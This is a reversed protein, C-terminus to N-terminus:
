IVGANIHAVLLRGVLHNLEHAENDLCTGPPPEGEHLMTSRINYARDFTKEDSEGCHTRVLIRCATRISQQRLERLGGILSARQDPELDCADTAMVLVREVFELSKPDRAARVALTEIASVLTVFRPSDSPHFHSQNYLQVALLQKPHLRRGVAYSEKLANSISGVTLPTVPRGVWFNLSRLDAATAHIKLGTVEGPGHKPPHGVALDTGIDIGVGLLLGALMAARQASEGATRAEDESAFGGGTLTLSISSDRIGAQPKSVAGHVLQAPAPPQFDFAREDSEIIGGSIRCTVQFDYM